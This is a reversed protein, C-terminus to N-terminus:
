SILAIRKSVGNIIVTWYEAIIPSVATTISGANQTTSGIVFQNNATSLASKGLVVCGVFNSTSAHGIVVNERNNAGTVRANYGLIVNNTNTVATNTIGEGIAVSQGGLLTSNAGLLVNKSGNSTGTTNSGIFVNDIGSIM